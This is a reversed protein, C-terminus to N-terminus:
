LRLAQHAIDNCKGGDFMNRQIDDRVTFLNCCAANIATHRGDPCAVRKIIAGQVAQLSFAVSLVTALHKFAM